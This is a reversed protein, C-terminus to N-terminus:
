IEQVSCVLNIVSAGLRRNRECIPQVCSWSCKRFSVSRLHHRWGARYHPDFLQITGACLALGWIAISKLCGNQAIRCSGACSEAHQLAAISQTPAPCTIGSVSDSHPPPPGLPVGLCASSCQEM